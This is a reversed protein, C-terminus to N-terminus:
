VFLDTIWVGLDLLLVYVFKSFIYLGVGENYLKGHHEFSSHM